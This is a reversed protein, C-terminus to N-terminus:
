TECLLPVANWSLGLMSLCEKSAGAVALTLAAEHLHSQEAPGVPVNRSQRDSKELAALFLGATAPRQDLSGTLVKAAMRQTPLKERTVSSGSLSDSVAGVHRLSTSVRTCLAEGCHERVLQAGGFPRRACQLM